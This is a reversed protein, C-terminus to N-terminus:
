EQKLYKIMQVLYDKKFNEKEDNDLKRNAFAIFGHSSYFSILKPWDECELYVFKGGFIAQGERVKVIAIGLLEDGTILENYGNDYNKGLQGILPISLQFNGLASNYKTFKQIRKKTTRSIKADKSITIVKSALAFYGVLIPAKKYQAYVLHTASYGQNSFEIAKERLFFEVDKNDPCLYQSLIKKVHEEGLESIMDRLAVSQYGTM